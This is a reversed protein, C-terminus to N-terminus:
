TVPVTVVSGGAAASRYAADVLVHARVATAFDPGAAAGGSVATVFEVDPNCPTAGMDALREEVLPGSVSKEAAGLRCWRVEGLWHQGDLACWFRDCFIELHRENARPLLNHWVTTLTGVAGSSFRMALVASDEIGPHGYFARTRCSVETVPGCLFELIDVDHISHELLVGAGARAVDARWSSDYMAQIPFYQDDRFAVCLQAGNAPDELLRQLLTFSPSARLVLGVRNVVGACAVVEAMGRALELSTALPKECFVPLGRAVVAAVLRPHESTWSCVYVADSQDLVEAESSCAVAGTRASFDAARGADPDYVANLVADAGGTILSRAHLRAILGAGLFGVRVTM